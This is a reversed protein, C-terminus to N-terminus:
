SWAKVVAMLCRLSVEWVSDLAGGKAGRNDNLGGPWDPHFHGTWEPDPGHRSFTWEVDVKISLRTCFAKFLFEQVLSLFM